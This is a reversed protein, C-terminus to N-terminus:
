YVCIEMSNEHYQVNLSNSNKRKNLSNIWQIYKIKWHIKIIKYM